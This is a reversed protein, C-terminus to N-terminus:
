LNENLLHFRKKCYRDISLLLFTEIFVCNCAHLDVYIWSCSKIFYSKRINYMITSSNVYFIYFWYIFRIKIRSRLITNFYLKWIDFMIISSIIYFIYFWYIFRIKMRSRLTINVQKNENEVSDVQPQLMDSDPMPCNWLPPRGFEILRDTKLYHSHFSVEQRENLPGIAWIIAQSGNTRIQRDLEDSSELPRQYTVISYGNVM